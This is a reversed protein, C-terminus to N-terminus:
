TSFTDARQSAAAAPALDALALAHAPRAPFPRSSEIRLNRDVRILEGPEMLRWDPDGDMRETAFIVAGRVSVDKSRVSIRRSRAHLHGRAASPRTRDLVYLEHTQPYRLAWVETATSLLFNLSFVPLQGAIWGVAARIGAGVDDGNRRIEASILAFARESDTDGLVLDAAGLARLRRDILDLGEFAGNHAFLRGDQEFPHTNAVSLGGTSAYRVHALFTTSELERADAAFDSDRWAAIPQKDVQPSGDGGFWGIGAGDPERHSQERLSDPSDLLWFTARAPATGAHM